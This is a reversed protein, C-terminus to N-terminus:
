KRNKEEFLKLYRGYGEKELEEKPIFRLAASNMCYRMGTPQPGDPFVHGLHSDAYRSRVETRAAFLSKDEKEVIIDKELPRTFSPWGTGSDFKDKSSFLPEGSVIDVYLGERKNHVYENEFPPETGNQQTVAYQRETLKKRLTADDPKVFAPATFPSTGQDGKWVDRIFGERGSGSRYARYHMPNKQDYAQHYEEAPFFNTFPRIQTVIHRKFKGSQALDKLVKGAVAKEEDSNYFVASLYGTGRDAFQGGEDTPDIHKFFYILVQEYSVQVPNYYVQVAETYGLGAYTSYTPKENEGGAYGSVVKQVGKLKRMDSEVCWFCGGALTAIRVSEANSSNTAM